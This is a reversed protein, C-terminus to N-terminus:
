SQDGTPKPHLLDHARRLHGLTLREAVVTSLGYIIPRADRHAETVYNAIEAFPELAKRAEALQDKLKFNEENMRKSLALMTAHTDIGFGRELLLTADTMSLKEKAEVLQAELAVIRDRAALCIPVPNYQGRRPSWSRFAELREKLDDSPTAPPVTAEPYSPGGYDKDHPGQMATRQAKLADRM